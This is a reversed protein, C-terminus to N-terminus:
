THTWTSRLSFILTSYRVDFKDLITRVSEGGVSKESAMGLEGQTFIILDFISYRAAGFGLVKDAAYGYEETRSQRRSRRGGSEDVERELRRRRDGEAARRRGSVTMARRRGSGPSCEMLRRRCCCRRHHRRRCRRLNHRHHRRRSPPPFLCVCCDDLLLLPPQPPWFESPLPSPSVVAAVTVAIATSSLRFISM